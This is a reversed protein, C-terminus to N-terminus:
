STVDAIAVPDAEQVGADAHALNGGLMLGCGLALAVVVMGVGALLAVRGKGRRARTTSLATEGGDDNEDDAEPDDDEEAEPVFGDPTWTGRRPMLDDPDGAAPMPVTHDPSLAQTQPHASLPAPAHEPAAQTYVPDLANWAPDAGARTAFAPPMEPSSPAEDPIAPSLYMPDFSPATADPSGPSGPADTPMPALPAQAGTDGTGAMQRSVYGAFGMEELAGAIQNAAAQGIGDISALDSVSMGMLDDACTMGEDALLEALLAGHRVSALVVALSDPAAPGGECPGVATGDDAVEADFDVPSPDAHRPSQAPGLESLREAISDLVEEDSPGGDMSELKGKGEEIEAALADAEARKEALEAVLDGKDGDLLPMELDLDDIREMILDAGEEGVGEISTLEGITFIVLDDITTIGAGALATAIAEDGIIEPLDPTEGPVASPSECEPDGADETAEDADIDLCGPALRFKWPQKDNVASIIDGVAVPGFGRIATLDTVSLGYLDAVCTIDRTELMRTWVEQLPHGELLEEIGMEVAAVSSRGIFNMVALQLADLDGQVVIETRAKEMETM